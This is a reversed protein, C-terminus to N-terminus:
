VILAAVQVRRCCVLAQREDVLRVCHHAGETREEVRLCACEPLTRALHAFENRLSRLTSTVAVRVPSGIAGGIPGALTFPCENRLAALPRTRLAPAAVAVAVGLCLVVAAIGLTAIMLLLSALPLSIGRFAHACYRHRRCPWGRHCSWAGLRTPQSLHLPGSAASSKPILSLGLTTGAWPAPRVTGAPASHDFRKLGGPEGDGCRLERLRGQGVVD